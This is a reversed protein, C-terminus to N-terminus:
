YRAKGKGHSELCMEKHQIAPKMHGQTPQM